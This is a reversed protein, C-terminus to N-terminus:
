LGAPIMFVLAFVALVYPCAFGSASGATYALGGWVAGIVTAITRTVLDQANGGVRPHMMLWAAVVAWWSEHSSWWSRSSEAWAPSSLTIIVLIVKVAFRSEFQQLRHLAKWVGYRLTDEDAAGGIGTSEGVNTGDKPALADPIYARAHIKGMIDDIEGKIRFYYGASVGGRDHRVQPNTRYIAKKLSYSPLFLRKRRNKPDQSIELVKSGLSYVAGAAQRLPNIFLFLAVLDPHSSYSSPLEPRRILSMDAEDFQTMASKLERLSNQVDFVEGHDFLDPLGIIRMLENDCCRLMDALANVLARAPGAMINCVIGMPNEYVSAISMSATSEHHEIQIAVEGHGESQRGDSKVSSQYEHAFLRTEPKIAM